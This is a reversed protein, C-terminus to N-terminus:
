RTCDRIANPKPSPNRGHSALGACPQLAASTPAYAVDTGFMGYRSRLRSASYGAADTCFM